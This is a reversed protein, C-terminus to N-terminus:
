KALTMSPLRGPQVPAPQAWPDVPGLPIPQCIVGIRGGVPYVNVLNPYGTNCDIVQLQAVRGARSLAFQLDALSRVPERNVSLIIDGPELGQRWATSGRAVQIVQLGNQRLQLTPRTPRLTVASQKPTGPQTTPTTGPQFGIVSTLLLTFFM